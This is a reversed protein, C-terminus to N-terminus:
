CAAETIRIYFSGTDPPLTPQYCVQCSLDGKTMLFPGYELSLPTCTSTDAKPLWLTQTPTGHWFICVGSDTCTLVINHGPWLPDNDDGTDCTLEWDFDRYTGATYLPFTGTGTWRHPTVTEDWTMTWGIGDLCDARDVADFIEAYLHKRLPRELCWCWCAFCQTTGDTLEEVWFDDFVAGTGTNNHGLGYYLGDGPDLCDEWVESDELIFGGAKVQSTAHDACAKLRYAVHGGSPTFPSYHLTKSAGTGGNITVLWEHTGANTFEYECSVPGVTSSDTCCPYIFYKDGVTPDMVYVMIAMEGASDAPEPNTGIIKANATNSGAGITEGAKEHLQNFPPSCTGCLDGTGADVIEWDGSVENWDGGVNTSAARNFHDYWIWCGGCCCWFGGGIGM